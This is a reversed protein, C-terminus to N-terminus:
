GWEEGLRYVCSPRPFPSLERGVCARPGYSFPVFAARQRDTIRAKDWRDPRFADVDAGWIRADHHVTYAPVSLVTGAAFTVGNITTPEDRVRPLGLSSTSHVRLTESIM